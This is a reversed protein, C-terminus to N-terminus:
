EDGGAVSGRQRVVVVVLAALAVFGLGIVVWLVPPLGGGDETEDQVTTTPISYTFALTADDGATLNTETIYYFRTGTTDAETQAGEAPKTVQANPPLQASVLVRSVSTPSVWKINVNFIDGSAQILGPVLAEVQGFRSTKLTMSYVDMSGRKEVEYPLEQETGTAGASIEGVWQPTSSSPVAIEVRAPLPTGTPLEGGVLCYPAAETYQVNVLVSAWAEPVSKAAAAGATSPMTALSALACACALVVLVTPRIRSPSRLTPDATALRM